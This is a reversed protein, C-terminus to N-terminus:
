LGRYLLSKRFIAISLTIHKEVTRQSINLAAAIERNTMGEIRSMRFVHATQPPLQSCLKLVEEILLTSMPSDNPADLFDRMALTEWVRSEKLRDLDITNFLIKNRRLLNLCENHAMSFLYAAVKTRSLYPRRKLFKYFVEQVIDEAVGARNTVGNIYACLRPYLTTFVEKVERETYEFYADVSHFM